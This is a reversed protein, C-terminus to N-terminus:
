AHLPTSSSYVFQSAKPHMVKKMKRRSKKESAVKSAGNNRQQEAKHIKDDVTARPGAKRIYERKIPALGRSMRAEASEQPKEM